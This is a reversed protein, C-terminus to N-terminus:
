AFTTKTLGATTSIIFGKRWGLPKRCHRAGIHNICIYIERCIDKNVSVQLGQVIDLNTRFRPKWFEVGCNIFNVQAHFKTAKFEKIRKAQGRCWWGCGPWHDPPGKFASPGKHYCFCKREVLIYDGINSGPYPM